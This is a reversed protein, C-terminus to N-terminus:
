PRGGFTGGFEPALAATAIARFAAPQRAGAGAPFAGALPAGALRTLDDVNSLEALGPVLPWSGIVVGAVPVGRRELAELTLATANLTGLAASTVVLAPADLRVALDALTTGRDDYRVLLGGAGEVVVLDARLAAVTRAVDDLRVCERREHRAAAEPSLAPAFRACEYVDAGTLRAVTDVDPIDGPVGTQAPKVYAASGGALALLGAAVITKGVGTGTATVVITAM